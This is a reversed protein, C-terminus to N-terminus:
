YEVKSFYSKKAPIKGRIKLFKKCCNKWPAGGFLDLPLFCIWFRWIFIISTLSLSFLTFEIFSNQRSHRPWTMGEHDAGLSAFDYMFNNTFASILTNWTLLLPVLVVDVPRWNVSMSEPRKITLKSCICYLMM